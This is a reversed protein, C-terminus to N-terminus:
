TVGNSRSTSCQSGTRYRISCLSASSTYLDRCPAAGPYRASYQTLTDDVLAPGEKLDSAFPSRCTRFDLVPKPSRAKETAPGLHQFLMGGEIRAAGVISDNLDLSLVYKKSFTYRQNLTFKNFRGQLPMHRTVASYFNDYDNM